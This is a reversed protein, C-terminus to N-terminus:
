AVSPSVREILKERLVLSWFRVWKPSIDPFLGFHEKIGETVPM